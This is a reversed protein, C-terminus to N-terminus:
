KSFSRKKNVHYGGLHFSGMEDELRHDPYLGEHTIGHNNYFDSNDIYRNPDGYKAHYM